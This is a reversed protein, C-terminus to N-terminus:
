WGHREAMAAMDRWQQAIEKYTARADADRCLEAQREAQEAKQRYQEARSALEPM